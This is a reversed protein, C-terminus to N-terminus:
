DVNNTNDDRVLSDIMISNVLRVRAVTEEVTKPLAEKYSLDRAYNDFVDAAQAVIAKFVPHFTIDADKSGFIGLLDEKKLAVFIELALTLLSVAKLALEPDSELAAKYNTKKDRIYGAIAGVDKTRFIM